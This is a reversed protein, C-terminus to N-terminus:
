FYEPFIAAGIEWLGQIINHNPRSVYDVNIQYVHGNQVATIAGWGPRNMIEEVPNPIISESTIIVQPNAELLAEDSISIWSYYHGFINVGGVIQIMEDLFTNAGLTVMHPAPSVEFYVTRSTTIGAAIERVAAIEEEMHSIIDEGREVEGMVEAIFRIDEMIEAISSGSEMYIVSIGANYVLNLPQQEGYIMTMGTVFVIDPNLELIFEGDLSMMDLVAISPDIGPVNDSFTDTAIINQAFGLEVLIETNSPGISIISTAGAPAATPPAPAPTACATLTFILLILPIYNKM